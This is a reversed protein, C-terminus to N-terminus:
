VQKDDDDGNMMEYEAWVILAVVILGIAIMM